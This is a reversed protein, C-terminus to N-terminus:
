TLFFNSSKCLAGADLTRIKATKVYDISFVHTTEGAPTSVSWTNEV